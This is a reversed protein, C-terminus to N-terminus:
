RKRRNVVNDAHLGTTCPQHEAHQVSSCRCPTVGLGNCERCDDAMGAEEAAMGATSQSALAFAPLVWVLQRRSMNVLPVEGAQEHEQREPAGSAARTLLLAM